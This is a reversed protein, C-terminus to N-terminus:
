RRLYIMPLLRLTALADRNRAILKLWREGHRAKLAPGAEGPELTTATVLEPRAEDKKGQRALLLGLSLHAELSKPNAAIARRYFSAAEDLRNQADAVYGADSLARADQPHAALWTNLKAEATKWDSSAAATEAAAVQPSVEQSDSTQNEPAIGSGKPGASSSSEQALGAAVSLSVVLLLSLAFRVM